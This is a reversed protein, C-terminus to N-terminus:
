QSIRIEPVVSELYRLTEKPLGLIPLDESDILSIFFYVECDIKGRFELCM